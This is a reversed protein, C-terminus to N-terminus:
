HSNWGRLPTTRGCLIPCPRRWREPAPRARRVMTGLLHNTIGATLPYVPLIRGTVDQRGAPEFVPNTMSRRRGQEEVAGYFVYEEGPKLNKEVYPQNFFTLHLVGTHDAVKVQVLDLGKRIRSLRPREAVIAEVCVKGETPADRVTCVARRDEYDRPFYGLLDGATGLGLKSLKAARVEGVGPFDTVPSSLRIEM